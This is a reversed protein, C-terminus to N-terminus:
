STTSLPSVIDALMVLAMFAFITFGGVWTSAEVFAHSTPAYARRRLKAWGMRIWDLVSVFIRGGDLPSFPLFNAFGLGINIVGAYMLMERLKNSTSLESSASTSGYAEGVAIISSVGSQDRPQGRLSDILGPVKSPLQALAQANLYFLAKTDRWAGSLSRPTEATDLKIGMMGNTVPVQLPVQRGARSVVIRVTDDGTSSSAAQVAPTIDSATAIDRGAISVIKDGPQIGSKEGGCVSHSACADVSKVQPLVSMIPTAWLVSVLVVTGLILNSVPGAGIILIRKLPHVWTLLRKDVNKDDEINPDEIEVFGGLPIAKVGYETGNKKRSFITPGFGIFYQPVHLHLAKAVVMHCAEHIGVSVSIILAFAVLGVIWALAVSM